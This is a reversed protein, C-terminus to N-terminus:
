LFHNVSVSIAISGGGMAMFPQKPCIFFEWNQCQLPEAPLKWPRGSSNDV